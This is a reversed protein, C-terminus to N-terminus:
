HSASCLVEEKKRKRCNTTKSSQSRVKTAVIACACIGGFLPVQVLSIKVLPLFLILTANKPSYIGIYGHSYGCAKNRM